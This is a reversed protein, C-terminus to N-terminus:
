SLGPLAVAKCMYYVTLLAVQVATLAERFGKTEALATPCLKSLFKIWPLPPYPETALLDVQAARAAFDFWCCALCDRARRRIVM